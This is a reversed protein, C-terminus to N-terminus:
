GEGRADIPGVEARPQCGPCTRCRFGPESGEPPSPEDAPGDALARMVPCEQALAMGRCASCLRRLADAQGLLEEARAELDAVKDDVAGCIDKHPSDHELWVDLLKRVERLTFGLQQARQVFRLRGVAAVPFARYGSPGRAAEALLGEREYFRVAEVTVGALAAM